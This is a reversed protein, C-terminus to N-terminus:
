RLVYALINAVIFLRSFYESRHRVGTNCWCSAGATTYGPGPPFAPLYFRVQDSERTRVPPPGAGNANALVADAPGARDRGQPRRRLGQILRDRYALSFFRERKHSAGVESATFLGAEIEYGLGCLKEGISRFWALIGPVNELFVMAPQVEGLIRFFDPWVYREDGDGQSKGAVSFPQCPLGAIVCDVVGCWPRGDFAALDTWVPAEDLRTEEMRSVLVECCYAEREVYCVVALRQFRSGCDSSLVERALVCPFSTSPLSIWVYDM